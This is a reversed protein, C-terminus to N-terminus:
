DYLEVDGDGHCFDWPLHPLGILHRDIDQVRYTFRPTRGTGVFGFRRLWRRKEPLTAFTWIRSVGQDEFYNMAASLLAFAYGKEGPACILDIIWGEDSEEISINLVVAGYTQEGGVRLVKYKRGPCRFYRWNLYGQDKHLRLVNDLSLRDALLDFSGDFKEIEKVKSLAESPPSPIVSRIISFACEALTEKPKRIRLRPNLVKLLFDSNPVDEYGISKRLHYMAENTGKAMALPWEELGANVLQKGLGKGRMRPSVMSDQQWSARIYKGACILNAPVIGVSGVIAGDERAIVATEGGSHPLGNQRWEWLERFRGWRKLGKAYFNLFDKEDEKRFARIEFQNNSPMKQRDHKSVTCWLENM